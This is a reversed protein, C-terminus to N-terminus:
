LTITNLVACGLFLQWYNPISMDSLNSGAGHRRERERKKKKKSSVMWLLSSFFPRGPSDCRLLPPLNREERLLDVHIPPTWLSATTATRGTGPMQTGQQYKSIQIGLQTSCRPFSFMEHVLKIFCEVCWYFRGAAALSLCFLGQFLHFKRKTLAAQSLM